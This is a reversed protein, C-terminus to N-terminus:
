FQPSCLEYKTHMVYMCVILYQLVMQQFSGVFLIVYLDERFFYIHLGVKMPKASVQMCFHVAAGDPSSKCCLPYRLFKRRSFFEYVQWNEHCNTLHQQIKSIVYKCVYTATGDTPLECCLLYCLFYEEPFFVYIHWSEDDNTLSYRLKAIVYICATCVTSRTVVQLLPSLM